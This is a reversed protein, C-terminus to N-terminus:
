CLVQKEHLTGLDVQFGTICMQKSLGIAHNVLPTENLLYITWSYHHMGKIGASLLCLFTPRQSNSARRTFMTLELVAICHPVTKFVVVVFCLYTLM